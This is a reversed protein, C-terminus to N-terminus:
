PHKTLLRKKINLLMYISNQAETQPNQTTNM